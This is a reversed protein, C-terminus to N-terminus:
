RSNPAVLRREGRDYRWVDRGHLRTGAWWRDLGSLAVHDEAGALVEDGAMTLELEAERFREADEEGDFAPALGAILPVDCSALDDLIHFFSSDGMFAAEEGGIVEPFLRVPNATGGAIGALIAQETRSLGNGPSPLEELFRFLAPRAFPLRGDLGEVRSAIAEPTPEALKSWLEAGLALDDATVARQREAFRLITDPRQTGLFDDAQVLVVGDRRNVDALFALIQILQLQDYLDHEFWLEIRDFDAHKRMIADREAFEAAIQEVPIRFRRALYAVREASCAEIPGGVIPGEHLVDRWPLILGAKGADRLGYGASDGNTIILDAMAAIM